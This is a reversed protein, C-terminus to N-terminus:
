EVFKSAVRHGVISNISVATPTIKSLYLYFNSTNNNKRITKLHCKLVECRKISIFIYKQMKIYCLYEDLNTFISFFDRTQSKNERNIKINEQGISSKLNKFKKM